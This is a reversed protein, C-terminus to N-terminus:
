WHPHYYLWIFELYFRRVERQPFSRFKKLRHYLREGPSTGPTGSTVGVPFGLGQDPTSQLDNKRWQLRSTPTGRSLVTMPTSTGEGVVRTRKNPRTSSDHDQRRFVRPSTEQVNRDLDLIPYRKSVRKNVYLLTRHNWCWYVIRWRRKIIKGNTTFIVNEYFKETCLTQLRFVDSLFTSPSVSPLYVRSTTM